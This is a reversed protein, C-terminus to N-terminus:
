PSKQDAMKNKTQLIIDKSSQGSKEYWGTYFQFCKKISVAKVELYLGFLM